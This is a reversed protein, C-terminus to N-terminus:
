TAASSARRTRRGAQRSAASSCAGRLEEANLGLWPRGPGPIRGSAILDALIPPLWDIPVFM